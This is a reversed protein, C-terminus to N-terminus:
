RQARRQWGQWVVPESKGVTSQSCQSDIGRLVCVFMESPVMIPFGRRGHVMYIRTVMRGRSKNTVDGPHSMTVMPIIICFLTTKWWVLSRAMVHWSTQPDFSYLLLGSVIWGTSAAAIRFSAGTYIPETLFSQLSICPGQCIINSIYTHIVERSGNCYICGNLCFIWILM